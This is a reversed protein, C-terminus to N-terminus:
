MQAWALTMARLQFAGPRFSVREGGGHADSFKSCMLSLGVADRARLPPADPVLRGRFSCTFAALPLVVQVEEGAPAEFDHQYSPAGFGRQTRVSLKYANGDGACMLVLADPEASGDEAPLAPLEPLAISAFGGGGAESVSGEFRLAGGNADADAACASAGGMVTDNVPRCQGALPALRLPRGLTRAVAPPM